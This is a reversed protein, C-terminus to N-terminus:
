RMYIAVLDMRGKGHGLEQHVIDVCQNVEMYLKRESHPIGADKRVGQDYNEVMRNIIDKGERYIGREKLSAELRERAFSHRFGHSGTYNTVKAKEVARNYASKVTNYKPALFQHQEKEALISRVKGEYRSLCPTERAKSAKTLGKASNLSGRDESAVFYLKGHKEEIHAAKLNAAERLRLGFANQLDLANQSGEPLNERIKQVEDRTYSRDQGKSRESSHILRQKPVWDREKFGQDKSFQNMGKSLLRLSTEINMLHGKSVGQNAKHTLYERYHARKLRYIDKIGKQGKAWQVFQMSVSYAHKVQTTSHIGTEQHNDRLQKKSEGIKYIKKLAQDVQNKVNRKGM